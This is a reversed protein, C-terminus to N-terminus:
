EGSNYKYNEKSIELSSVRRTPKRIPEIQLLDLPVELLRRERYKHFAKLNHPPFVLSAM